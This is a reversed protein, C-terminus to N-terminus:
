WSAQQNKQLFSLAIPPFIGIRPLCPIETGKEEEPRVPLNERQKKTHCKVM